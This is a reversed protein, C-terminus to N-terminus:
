FYKILSALDPRGIGPRSGLKVRTKGLTLLSVVFDCFCYQIHTRYSTLRPQILILVVGVKYLHIKVLHILKYYCCSFVFFISSVMIINYTGRYFPEFGPENMDSTETEDVSVIKLSELIIM